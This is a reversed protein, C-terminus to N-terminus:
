DFIAQRLAPDIVKRFKSEADADRTKGLRNDLASNWCNTMQSVLMILVTTSVVVSFTRGLYFGVSYRSTLIFSVTALEAILACEAVALWSDLSSSRRPWLLVLATVSMMLNVGAVGRALPALALDDLFLSPMIREDATILWTLACVLGIVIMTSSCIALLSSSPNAKDGVDDDKLCAYGILAAAFGFHWFIYLWPASQLGAGLLGRPAFAGPFTLVHPIVILASFLYGSALLLIARSGILSFQNFLLIATSLDTVFIIAEVAPVFSDLRLLQITAFPALAAFSFFVMVAGVLAARGKALSPPMTTTSIM